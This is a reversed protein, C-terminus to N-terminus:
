DICTDSCEEEMKSAIGEKEGSIHTSIRRNPVCMRGAHDYSMVEVEVRM